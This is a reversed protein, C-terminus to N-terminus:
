SSKKAKLRYNAALFRVAGDALEKPDTIGHEALEIIRKAVVERM